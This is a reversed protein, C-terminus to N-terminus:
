AASSSNALPDVLVARPPNTLWAIVDTVNDTLKLLALDAPAVTGAAVMNDLLSLLPQWYASGILIVPRVRMCRTQILALIEFLEDLTGIGGPLVAFGVAHRCMTVKRVFFYRVTACRDVHRNLSQEFPFRMRCGVSSGGADSAGRNAAEMLGPGGGTMVTFGARGLSEGLDRAMQYYATGEGLRASGFVTVWPGSPSMVGVGQTLDWMSRCLFRVENLRTRLSASRSTM